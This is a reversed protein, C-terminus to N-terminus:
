ATKYPDYIRDFMNTFYNQKQTEPSEEKKFKKEVYDYFDVKSNIESIGQSVANLEETGIGYKSLVIYIIKFIAM